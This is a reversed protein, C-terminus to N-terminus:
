CFSWSGNATVSYSTASVSTNADNYIKAGTGYFAYNATENLDRFTAAALVFDTSGTSTLTQFEFTVPATVYNGSVDPVLNSVDMLVDPTRLPQDPAYDM